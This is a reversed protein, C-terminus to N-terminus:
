REPFYGNGVRHSLGAQVAIPITLAAMFGVLRVRQARSVITSMESQM